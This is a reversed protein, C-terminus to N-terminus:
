DRPPSISMARWRCRAKCRFCHTGALPCLLIQGAAGFGFRHWADRGIGELEVDAVIARAGLTEGPFDVGLAHRVFSRGGDTGVLYRARVIENGVERPSARPM